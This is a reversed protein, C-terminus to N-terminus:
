GCHGSSPPYHEAPRVHRLGTPQASWWSRSHRPHGTPHGHLDYPQPPPKKKKRLGRCNWQWIILPQSAWNTNDTLKMIITRPSPLRPTPTAPTWGVGDDATDM